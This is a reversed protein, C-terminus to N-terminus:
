PQQFGAAELVAKGQASLVFAMFSRAGDPHKAKTLAAIERVWSVLKANRTPAQDLGPITASGTM